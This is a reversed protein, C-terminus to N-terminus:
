GRLRRVRGKRAGSSAGRTVVSVGDTNMNFFNPVSASYKPKVGLESNQVHQRFDDYSLPAHNQEKAYKRYNDYKGSTNPTPKLYESPAHAKWNEFSSKGSISSTPTVAPTQVPTKPVLKVPAAPKTGYVESRKKAFFETANERSQKIEDRNMYHIMMHKDKIGLNKLNNASHKLEDDSGHAAYKWSKGNDPSYVLTPHQETKFKRYAKFAKFPVSATAVGLRAVGGVIAGLSEDVPKNSM